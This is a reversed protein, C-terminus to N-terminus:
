PLTSVCSANWAGERRVLDGWEGLGEGRVGNGAEGNERKRPSPLLAVRNGEGRIKDQAALRAVPPLLNRSDIRRRDHGGFTHIGEVAAFNMRFYSSM